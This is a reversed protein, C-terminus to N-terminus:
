DIDKYAEIINQLEKKSISELKMDTSLLIVPVKIGLKKYIGDTIRKLENEINEFESNMLEDKIKLILIDNQKLHLKEIQIDM